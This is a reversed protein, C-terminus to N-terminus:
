KQITTITKLLRFAVTYPDANAGPRRDELYGYGKEAVHNPIRISAGRDSYGAKFTHISCTEHLGTLREELGAGYVAVHNKHHHELHELYSNIAARGTEPHRTEKTSFNAHMGSGNWDGQVPKNDFSVHIGYRESLRNLLWRAIWAQDSVSLMDNSEYVDGRYGIQYEWQAPMVEANMGYYLLGADICARAHDEALDRGLIKESGVGCYYPGQPAPYGYAPWGLPHKNNFFTYEQEFGIWPQYEEQVRSMLQVLHTRTNSPHPRNQSTYVECLVLYANHGRIPDPYIAVPKLVCDSNEGTAQNCSSGDFGWEPCESLNIPDQNSLFVRMKSRINQVPSTGDLWIYELKLTNNKAM